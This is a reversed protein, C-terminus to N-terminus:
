TARQRVPQVIAPRPAVMGGDIMAIPKKGVEKKLRDILPSFRFHYGVGTIVKRKQVEGAIKKALQIDLTLPKEVFFPICARAAMLEM